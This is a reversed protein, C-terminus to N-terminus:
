LSIRPLLPNLGILIKYSSVGAWRALEDATIREKGQTGILVAEDGVAVSSDPKLRVETHNATVSGVIPAREGDLLAYGHGAMNFPYGDAYGIPLVAIKEKTKAAYVRHYSITDGPRLTKVAAVRCKLQLVPKLALKNEEQTKDSPYYGYILIGPRVMDLLSDPDSLIAASSAAHKQGLTIGGTEAKECISLLRSIQERDFERDETLTTSIGIIKLNKLPALESILSHAKLHPIGMRGMGTDIHIHVQATKGMKAATQNLTKVDRTFVFQEIDYKVLLESSEPFLPGFNAITSTVGQERLQIAEDLKCVMLSYIGLRELYRATPILGHGYANAKIVAMVPRKVQNRIKDLNWGMHNYDLEIWVDPKTQYTHKEPPLSPTETGKERRNLLVLPSIGSLLLFNRRTWNM